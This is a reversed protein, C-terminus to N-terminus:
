RGKAICLDLLPAVSPRTELTAIFDVIGEAKRKGLAPEALAMFKARVATDDMPRAHDGLPVEEVAKLSTGDRFAVEVSGPRGGAFRAEFEPDPPCEILGTIRMVDADRFRGGDFQAETLRGDVLAMAVCSPLSHDATERNAPRFKDPDAARELNEELVTARVRVIEGLRGKVAPHLRIAAEVPAQLAYQVPFQKLSVREIRYREHDLAFGAVDDRRDGVNGYLWEYAAIPGTFGAGALRAATISESGSLPYGVAKAMSLEGKSLAGLTLHRMGGLVSGHAMAEPPQGWAKGAVFPVVFGAASVHHFGRAQFSMSDCLRIQVEYGALIAEILRRGDGGAEEVCALAVPINEAPHCVDRSWYVDMFDLYRVMAGNLAAAGEATCRRGSGLCRAAPADPAADPVTAALLRVPGADLAGLACGLTDLTLRKAMEVASEPLRDFRIGDVFGAIRRSLPEATM